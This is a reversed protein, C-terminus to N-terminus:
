MGAKARVDSSTDVVGAPPRVLRDASFPKRLSWGTVVHKGYIAGDTGVTHYRTPVLVGDVSAWEDYVHIIPGVQSAGPPAEMLDLLPGYGVAYELARLRSTAPELYLRYYVASPPQSPDRPFRVIFTPLPQKEGPLSAASAAELRAGPVLSLFPAILSYQTLKIMVRPPNGLSWDLTWVERGDWALRSGHNPYEHYARGTSREIVEISRWHRGEDGDFELTHDYSVTSAAEWASRGGHAAALRAALDEPAAAAAPAAPTAVLSLITWAFGHLEM